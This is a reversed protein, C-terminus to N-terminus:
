FIASFLYGDWFLKQCFDNSFNVTDEPNIKFNPKIIIIDDKKYYNYIYEPVEFTDWLAIIIIKDIKNKVFPQLLCNNLIGGDLKYGDYKGDLLDEKFKEFLLSVNVKKMEGNYNYPLLSSARIADLADEKSFQKIDVIVEKLTKNQVEVYNVYFSKINENEGDLKRIEDIMKKNEIVMDFSDLYKNENMEQWFSYMEEYKNKFIFYGNIAGISTGSIASINFDKKEMLGKIIGAQYAGKAGGGTLCLGCRMIIVELVM